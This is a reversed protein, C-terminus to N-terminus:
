NGFGSLDMLKYGTTDFMSRDVTGIKWNKMYLDYSEKKNKLQTHGELVVGKIGYINNKYYSSAGKANVMDTFLTFDVDMDEAVWLTSMEEPTEVLYEKCLHGEITKTKGTPTINYDGEEVADKNLTVKVNPMKTITGTKNEEMLMSIKRQKRDYVMRMDMEGTKPNLPQMVFAYEDIYFDVMSPSDKEEKGNKFNRVEMRFSGIFESPVVPRDDIEDDQEITITVDGDGDKVIVEDDKAKGEPQPKPEQKSSPKKKKKFIGELKDLASDIGQDIKRNVRQEAKRKARRQPDLIQAMAFTNMILFVSLCLSPLIIKYFHMSMKNKPLTKM